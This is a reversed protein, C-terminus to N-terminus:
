SGKRKIGRVVHALEKPVAISIVTTQQNSEPNQVSLVQADCVVEGRRNVGPVIEGVVPLPLYEYPFQIKVREEEFTMDLVFIALGPCKPICISCGQCKKEDLVPLSNIDDGMSIAGFRCADVCPNCPIEQLCEIVAVPGERMRKEGPVGPCADLEEKSPVGEFELGSKKM